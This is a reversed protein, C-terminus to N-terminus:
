SVVAPGSAPFLDPRAQRLRRRARKTAVLVTAPKVRLREAVAKVPLQAIYRLRLVERQRATLVDLVDPSCRVSEAEPSNVGRVLGIKPRRQAAARVAPDSKIRHAAAYLLWKTGSVGIGMVEATEAITKGRLAHIEIAQRERPSLKHLVARVQRLTEPESVCPLDNSEAPRDEFEFGEWGGVPVARKQRVLHLAQYQVIGQMWAACHGKQPDYAHREQWAKVLANQVAEEAESYNGLIRTAAALFQPRYRRVLADFDIGPAGAAPASVGAAADPRIATITM